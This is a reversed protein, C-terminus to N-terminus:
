REQERERESVNERDGKCRRKEQDWNPTFWFGNRNIASSTCLIETLSRSRECRPVCCADSNTCLGFFMKLNNFLDVQSGMSKVYNEIFEFDLMLKWFITPRFQVSSSSSCIYCSSNKSKPYHSFFTVIQDKFKVMFLDIYSIHRLLILSFIERCYYQIEEFKDNLRITGDEPGVICSFQIIKYLLSVLRTYWIENPMNRTNNKDISKMTILM